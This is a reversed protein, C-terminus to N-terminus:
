EGGSRSFLVGERGRRGVVDIASNEGSKPTPPGMVPEGAPVEGDRVGDDSAKGLSVGAVDGGAEGMGMECDWGMSECEEGLDGTEAIREFDKSGLLASGPRPRGRDEESNMLFAGLGGSPEGMSTTGPGEGARARASGCAMGRGLVAGWGGSNRRREEASSNEDDDCPGDANPTDGEAKDASVGGGGATCPGGGGTRM